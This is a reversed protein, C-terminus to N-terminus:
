LIEISFAGLLSSQVFTSPSFPGWKGIYKSIRGELSGTNTGACLFVEGIWM